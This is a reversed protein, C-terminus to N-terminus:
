WPKGHPLFHALLAACVMFAVTVRSGRDKLAYVIPDDHMEGRSTKIWLRSLWYILGFAVAWLLEPHRYRELTQPTNIFLGFVVVSSLASGIGLPWLVDVDSVRYDRGRAAEQGAQRLAILESCRKVLALSLFVFVSFALLWASTEVGIAVAGAVIRLTYLLSLTMVDILVYEKLVLSYATTVVLYLLMMALYAGSVAAAIGLGAALLLAAGAVGNAIPIRGSAFPRLRKRAHRRDNELDWLDNVIYTASAALSMAIFAAFVTFLRGPDLFGFSTLLPVVILLNKLWQHIRIAKLWTRLGVPENVFEREVPVRGGLAAKVASPVGVLVAATAAQWIPIDARSDGAYAFRNGVLAQIAGLKNTGKLNTNGDSALVDDFIALHAAVAHAISEDAATALVIRRGGAKQEKLYALLPEAYPLQEAGIQVRSAVWRKFSARGALLRLPLQFITAPSGRVLRIVSEVLTDTKTLTGDLDVVIPTGVLSDM